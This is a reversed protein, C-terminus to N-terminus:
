GNAKLWQVFGYEVLFVRKDTGTFAAVNSALFNRGMSAQVRAFEEPTAERARVKGTRLPLELYSVDHFVLLADPRRAITDVAKLTLRSCDHTYHHLSLEYGNIQAMWEHVPQIGRVEQVERSHMETM